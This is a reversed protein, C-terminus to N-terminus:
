ATANEEPPTEEEAVSQYGDMFAKKASKYGDKVKRGMAQPLKTQRLLEYAFAGAFVGIFVGTMLKGM